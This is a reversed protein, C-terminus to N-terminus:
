VKKPNLAEQRCTGTQEMHPPPTTQTALTSSHSPGVTNQTTPKTPNCPCHTTRPQQTSSIFPVARCSQIKICTRQALLRKNAQRDTEQRNWTPRPTTQTALTSSIFPIAQCSTLIPQESNQNPIAMNRTQEQPATPPTPNSLHSLWVSYSNNCQYANKCIM